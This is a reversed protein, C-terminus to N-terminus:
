EFQNMEVQHHAADFVSAVIYALGHQSAHRFATKHEESSRAATETEESALYTFSRFDLGRENCIASAAANAYTEDITRVYVHVAVDASPLSSRTAAAIGVYYLRKEKDM